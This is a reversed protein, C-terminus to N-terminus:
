LCKETVYAMTDISMTNTNPYFDVHRDFRSDFWSMSDTIKELGELAPSNRIYSSYIGGRIDDHLDILILAELGAFCKIDCKNDSHPLSLINGFLREM